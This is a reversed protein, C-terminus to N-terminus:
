RYFDLNRDFLAATDTLLLKARVNRENCDVTKDIVTIMKSTTFVTGHVFHFIFVMDHYNGHCRMM